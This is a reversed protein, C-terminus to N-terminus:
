KQLKNLMKYGLALANPKLVSDVLLMGKKIRAVEPIHFIALGPEQVDRFNWYMIYISKNCIYLFGNDLRIIKKVKM